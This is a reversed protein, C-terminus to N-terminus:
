PERRRVVTIGVFSMVVKGHQDVLTSLCHVDAHKPQPVVDVIDASGTLVAGPFVPNPLRLRDLGKGAVLALRPIYARSALSSYLAMTHIGSAIVDGFRSGVADLHIPLPDFRRAFEIIEDRSVTVEGLDMWDGVALDDAYWLNEPSSEALDRGTRQASSMLYV